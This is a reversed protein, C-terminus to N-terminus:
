SNAATATDMARGTGTVMDAIRMVTTRHTIGSPRVLFSWEHRAFQRRSM